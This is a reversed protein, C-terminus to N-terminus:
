FKGHTIGESLYDCAGMNGYNALVIDAYHTANKFAIQDHKIRCDIDKDKDGRISM